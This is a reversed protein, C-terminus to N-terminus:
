DTPGGGLDFENGEPDRLTVWHTGYERFEGVRTAGLGTLRELEGDWDPGSLDLHVRNKVRKPEEVKLFMLAPGPSGLGITAFFPNSGDDITRELVQSWFGALKEANECDFVIHAISLTM